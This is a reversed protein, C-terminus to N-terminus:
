LRAGISPLKNDSLKGLEKKLYLILSQGNM